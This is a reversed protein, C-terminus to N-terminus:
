WNVSIWAVNCCAANPLKIWLNRSLAAKINKDKIDDCIKADFVMRFDM